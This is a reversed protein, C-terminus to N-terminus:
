RKTDRVDEYIPLGMRRAQQKMNASGPSGGDWILILADAYEAMKQNRLHGAQNGYRDWDKTSVYFPKIPISHRKAWWEGMTDIGQAGGSVVETIDFGSAVAAWTVLLLRDFDRSGAIIVKM